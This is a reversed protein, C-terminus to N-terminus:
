SRRVYYLFFFLLVLLYLLCPSRLLQRWYFLKSNGIRGSFLCLPRQFVARAEVQLGFVHCYWCSSSSAQFWVILFSTFTEPVQQYECTNPRWTSFFYDWTIPWVIIYECLFSAKNGEERRHVQCTCLPSKDKWSGKYRGHLFTILWDIMKVRSVHARTPEIKNLSFMMQITHWWSFLGQHAKNCPYCLFFWKGRRLINLKERM